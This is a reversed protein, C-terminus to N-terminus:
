FQAELIFSKKKMHAMNARGNQIMKVSYGQQSTETSVEKNKGQFIRNVKFYRGNQIQWKSDAMKSSTICNLFCMTEM